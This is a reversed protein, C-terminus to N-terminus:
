KRLGQLRGMLVQIARVVWQVNEARAASCEAGAVLRVGLQDAVIWLVEDMGEGYAKGRARMVASAQIAQEMRVGAALGAAYARDLELIVAARDAVGAGLM